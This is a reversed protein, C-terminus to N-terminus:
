KHRSIKMPEGKKPAIYDFKLLQLLVVTAMFVVFLLVVAVVLAPQVTMLLKGEELWTGFQEGGNETLATYYPRFCPGFLILSLASLASLSASVVNLIAHRRSLWLLVLAFIASLLGMAIFLNGPLPGIDLNENITEDSLFAFILNIGSLGRPTPAKKGALNIIFTMIQVFLDDSNPELVAFPLFFCVIAGVLLVSLLLRAVFSPRCFLDKIKNM